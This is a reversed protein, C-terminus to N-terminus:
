IPDLKYINTVKKNGGRQELKFEIPQFKGKLVVGPENREKRDSYVRKIQHMPNMKAFITSFLNDFTVTEFDCNKFFIKYFLLDM